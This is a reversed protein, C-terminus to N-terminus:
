ACVHMCYLLNYDTTLLSPLYSDPYCVSESADAIVVDVIPLAVRIMSKAGQKTARKVTWHTSVRDFYVHFSDLIFDIAERTLTLGTENRGILATCAAATEKAISSGVFPYNNATTWLLADVVGSALLSEHRTPDQAAVNILKAPKSISFWPMCPQASLQASSGLHAAVRRSSGAPMARSAM